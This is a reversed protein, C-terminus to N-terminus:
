KNSVKNGSTSTPKCKRCPHTTDAEDEERIVNISEVIRNLEDAPIDNIDHCDRIDSTGDTYTVKVTKIM